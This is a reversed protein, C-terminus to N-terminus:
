TTEGSGDTVGDLEGKRRRVRRVRPKYEDLRVGYHSAIERLEDHPLFHSCSKAHDRCLQVGDIRIIHFSHLEEGHNSIRRFLRPLDVETMVDLPNKINIALFLRKKRM